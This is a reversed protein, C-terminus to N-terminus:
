GEDPDTRYLRPFLYHEYAFRAIVSGVAAVPLALLVGFFGFLQGGALVAFIVLVPHLGIRDGVLRPTLFVGEVLQAFVFVVVVGALAIWSQAQAVAALGALVLGIILGLYPVFSVIGSVVGIALAYDIGVIYLGVSYITALAIMVLVQGRLFGGLAGDAAVAIAITKEKSRVPLLEGIAAVMRDWDRLLYFTLVPILLVNVVVGVLAAGSRTVRALAEAAWNAASAGYESLYPGLGVLGGDVDFGTLEVVKPLIRSEVWQVYGPLREFLAGAQASVLPAILVVLASMVFFLLVFFVVVAFTRSMRLRELRDVLPDGVYAILFAAVFPTLIPSLLYLVWGIAFVILLNTLRDEVIM